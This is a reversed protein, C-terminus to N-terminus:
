GPKIWIMLPYWTGWRTDQLAKVPRPQYKSRQSMFFAFPSLETNYVCSTCCIDNMNKPTREIQASIVFKKGLDLGPFMEKRQHISSKDKKCGKFVLSPGQVLSTPTLLIFSHVYMCMHVVANKWHCTRLIFLSQNKYFLSNGWLIQRVQLLERQPLQSGQVNFSTNMLVGPGLGGLELFCVKSLLGKWAMIWHSGKGEM